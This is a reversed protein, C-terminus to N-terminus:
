NVPSLWNSKMSTFDNYVTIGMFSPKSTRWYKKSFDGDVLLGLVVVRTLSASSTKFKNQLVWRELKIAFLVDLFRAYDHTGFKTGAQSTDEHTVNLYKHRGVYKQDTQTWQLCDTAKWPHLTMICLLVWLRLSPLGETSRRFIKM